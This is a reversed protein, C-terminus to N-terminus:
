RPPIRRRHRRRPMIEFLRLEIVSSFFLWVRPLTEDQRARSRATTSLGAGNLARALPPPCTCMGDGILHLPPHCPRVPLLGRAGASPCINHQDLKM